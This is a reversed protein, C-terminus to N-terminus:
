IQRCKPWCFHSHSRDLVTLLNIWSVARLSVGNRYLLVRWGQGNYFMWCSVNFPWLGVGRCWTQLHLYQRDAESTLSNTYCWPEAEGTYDGRWHSGKNQVKSGSSIPPPKTKVARMKLHWFWLGRSYFTHVTASLCAFLCMCVWM